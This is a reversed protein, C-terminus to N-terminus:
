AAIREWRNGYLFASIVYVAACALLIAPQSRAALIGASMALTSQALGLMVLNGNTFRWRKQTLPRRVSQHHGMALALLGASISAIPSLLATQLALLLLWAAGKAGLIQWGRLPL